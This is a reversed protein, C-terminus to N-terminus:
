LSSASLARLATSDTRLRSSDASGICNVFVMASTNWATGPSHAPLDAMSMASISQTPCFSPM